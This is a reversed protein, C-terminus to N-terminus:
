DGIRGPANEEATNSDLRWGGVLKAFGYRRYIAVPSIRVPRDQEQPVSHRMLIVGQALLLLLGLACLAIGHFRGFKM